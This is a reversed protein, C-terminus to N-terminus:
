TKIFGLTPLNGGEGDWKSIEDKELKKEVQKQRSLYKGVVTLITLSAIASAIIITQKNKM